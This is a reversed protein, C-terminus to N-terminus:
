TAEAYAQDDDPKELVKNVNAFLTKLNKDAKKIKMTLISKKKAIEKEARRQAESVKKKSLGAKLRWARLRENERIKMLKEEDIAPRTLHEPM